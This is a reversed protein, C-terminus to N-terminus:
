LIVNIVCITNACFSDHAAANAYGGADAVPSASPPVVGIDLTRGDLERKVQYLQGNYAASL